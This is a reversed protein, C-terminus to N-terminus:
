RKGTSAKKRKLCHYILFVLFSLLIGTIVGASDLCVDQWMATRSGVLYQHWEDTGAYITGILWSSLIRRAPSHIRIVWFLAAGLMTYEIFHASKRVLKQHKQLLQLQESPSLDHYGPELIPMIWKLVTSSTHNSEVANQASFMFIVAAIALVILWLGRYVWKNKM